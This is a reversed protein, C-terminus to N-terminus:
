GGGGQEHEGCNDYFIRPEIVRYRLTGTHHAAKVWGTSTLSDLYATIPLTYSKSIGRLVAIQRRPINWPQPAFIAMTDIAALLTDSLIYMRPDINFDFRTDYKRFPTNVTTDRNTCANLTYEFGANATDVTFYGDFWRIRM